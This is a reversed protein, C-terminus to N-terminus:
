LQSVVKEALPRIADASCPCENFLFRAMTDGKRVMLMTGGMEYAEDGLGTLDGTGTEAASGHESASVAGKKVHDFATKTVNMTM